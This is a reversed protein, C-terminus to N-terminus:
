DRAKDVSRLAFWFCLVGLALLVGYDRWDSARGLAAARIAQAAHTLPLAALLWQAWDPLRELPCSM